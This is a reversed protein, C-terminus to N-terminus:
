ERNRRRSEKAIDRLRRRKLVAKAQRGPNAARRNQYSPSFRGVFEPRVFSSIHQWMANLWSPEHTQRVTAPPNYTQKEIIDQPEIPQM